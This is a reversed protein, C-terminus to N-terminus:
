KVHSTICVVRGHMGLVQEAVWGNRRDAGACKYYLFRMCFTPGCTEHGSASVLLRLLSMCHCGAFCAFVDEMFKMIGGFSETGDRRNHHANMHHAHCMQVGVGVCHVKM